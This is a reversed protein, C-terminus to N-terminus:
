FFKSFVSIEQLRNDNNCMCLTIRHFNYSSRKNVMLLWSHSLHIPLKFKFIFEVIESNLSVKLLSFTEVNISKVIIRFLSSSKVEAINEPEM